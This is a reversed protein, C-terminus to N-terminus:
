DSSKQSVIQVFHNTKGKLSKRDSLEEMKDWSLILLLWTFFTNPVKEWFGSFICRVKESNINILIVWKKHNFSIMQLVHPWKPYLNGFFKRDTYFDIQKQFVKFILPCPKAYTDFNVLLWAIIKIDRSSKNM